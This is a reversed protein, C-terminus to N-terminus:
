KKTHKELVAITTNLDELTGQLPELKSITTGATGLGNLLQVLRFPYAVDTLDVLPMTRAVTLRHEEWLAVADSVTDRSNVSPWRKNDIAMRLFAQVDQAAITLMRAATQSDVREKRITSFWQFGGTVVAGVIVGV